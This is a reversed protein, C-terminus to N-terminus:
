WTCSMRTTPWITSACASIVVICNEVRRTISMMSCTPWLSVSIVQLIRQSPLARITSTTPRVGPRISGTAGAEIINHQFYNEHFLLLGQESAKAAFEQLRNWYWTNPKTLDYKSMGDWGQGEGSRAFPQEYHPAWVDGDRRRVRIHDDRRRDYWLGYNHDLLLVGRQKMNAVVEDIRDTLGQGERDPVFRTVHDTAM